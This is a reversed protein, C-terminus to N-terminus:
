DNLVQQFSRLSKPISRSMLKGIVPHNDIETRDPTSAAPASKPQDIRERLVSMDNELRRMWRGVFLWVSVGALAGGSTFYGVLRWFGFRAVEEVIVTILWEVTDAEYM